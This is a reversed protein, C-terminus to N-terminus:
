YRVSVLGCLLLTVSINEDNALFVIGSWCYSVGEREEVGGIRRRDEDRVQMCVDESLGPGMGISGLGCKTECRQM